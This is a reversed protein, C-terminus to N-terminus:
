ASWCPPLMALSVALSHTSRSVASRAPSNSRYCYLVSGRSLGLCPATDFRSFEAQAQGRFQVGGHGDLGFEGVFTDVLPHGVYRAPLFM